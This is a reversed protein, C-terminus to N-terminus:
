KGGCLRDFKVDHVIIQERTEDTDSISFTIPQFVACSTDIPGKTNACSGLATLILCLSIAKWPANWRLHRM